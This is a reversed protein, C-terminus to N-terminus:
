KAAQLGCIVPLAAPQVHIDLVQEDGRFIEGDVHIAVPKHFHIKVNKIRRVSLYPIPPYDPRTLQMMYGPIKRLPLNRILVLDLYGDTLEANPAVWFDGGEVKGNAVAIMFYDDSLEQGDAVIGFSQSRSGAIARLAALKYRFRGEIFTYKQAYVNALGDFGIGMTNIFISGNVMGTDIHMVQNLELLHLAEDIDTPINLSKALDNGNGLPLVGMSARSGLLGSAVEKVTGDGGCAVLTPFRRSAEVAERRLSEVSETTVLVSHDSRNRIFEEIRSRIGENNAKDAAPNFLFCYPALLDGM